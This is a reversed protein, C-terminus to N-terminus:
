AILNKQSKLDIDFIEMAKEFQEITQIVNDGLIHKTDDTYITCHWHRDRLAVACCWVDVLYDKSIFTFVNTGDNSFGLKTLFDETIEEM